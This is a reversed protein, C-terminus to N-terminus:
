NNLFPVPFPTTSVDDRTIKLEVLNTLTSTTVNTLAHISGDSSLQLDSQSPVIAAILLYSKPSTDFETIPISFPVQIVGSAPITTAALFPTGVANEPALRMAITNGTYAGAPLTIQLVFDRTAVPQPYDFSRASSLAADTGDDMKTMQVNTTGFNSVSYTLQSPLGPIISASVKQFGSCTPCQVQNPILTLVQNIGDYTYNGLYLYLPTGAYKVKFTGDANMQLAFPKNNLTGTFFSTNAVNYSLIQPTALFNGQPDAANVTLSTNQGPAWGATPALTLVTNGNSWMAGLAPSSVQGAGTMSGALSLSAPDMAEGFTFVLPTQVTLTSGNAPSVTVTPLTADVTYALSATIPNGAPDQAQVTLTQNGGSWGSVPSIVLTDNVNAGSTLKGGDSLAAMTGGLVIAALDMTESYTLVIQTSKGILAGTPPAVAEAPTDDDITYKLELPAIAIDAPGRANVVLTQAGEPWITKPTLTLIDFHKQGHDCDDGRRHDDGRHSQDGLDRDDSDCRADDRSDRDIRRPSWDIDGVKRALSGSLKLSDRDMHENFTIVIPVGNRMQSGNVPLATATPPTKGRRRLAWKSFHRIYATVTHTSTNVTSPVPFWVGRNLTHVQLESEPIGNLQAPYYSLTLTSPRSFTQGEPGLEVVTGSVVNPDSPFKDTPSITLVTAAAVASSPVVLTIPGATAATPTFSVAGGTEDVAVTASSATVECSPSCATATDVAGGGSGSGGDGNCNALLLITGLAWLFPRYHRGM